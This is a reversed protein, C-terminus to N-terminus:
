SQLSSLQQLLEKISVGENAAVHKLDEFEYKSKRVGYGTSVNKRITGYNTHIEEITTDLNLQSYM